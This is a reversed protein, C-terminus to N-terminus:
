SMFKVSFRFIKKLVSYQEIIVTRDYQAQLLGEYISFEAKFYELDWVLNHKGNIYSMLRPILVQAEKNIEGFGRLFKM